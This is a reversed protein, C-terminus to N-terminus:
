MTTKEKESAPQADATGEREKEISTISPSIGGYARM